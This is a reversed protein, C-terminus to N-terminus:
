FQTYFTDPYELCMCIEQAKDVFILAEMDVETKRNIEEYAVCASIRVLHMYLSTDSLV